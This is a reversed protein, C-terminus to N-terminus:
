FITLKFFFSLFYKFFRIRLCVCGFCLYLVLKKTKTKLCHTGAQLIKFLREGFIQTHSHSAIVGHWNSLAPLYPVSALSPPVPSSSTATGPDQPGLVHGPQTCGTFTGQLLPHRKMIVAFANAGQSLDLKRTSGSFPVSWELAPVLSSPSGLGQPCPSLLDGCRPLM